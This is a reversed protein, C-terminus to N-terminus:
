GRPMQTPRKTRTGVGVSLQKGLAAFALEMKPLATGHNLDLIRDVEQRPIRMRRALESKRVGDARMAQYLLVKVAAQAPLTVLRKGASPRPIPERDHIRAEIAELLAGQAKSLADEVTDGFSTLEPFDPSTVLLTGNDEATLTIPYAIM